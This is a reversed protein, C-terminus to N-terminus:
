NKFPSAWPVIDTQFGNNSLTKILLNSLVSSIQLHLCFEVFYHRTGATCSCTQIKPSFSCFRSSVKTIKNHRHHTVSESKPGPSLIKKSASMVDSPSLDTIMALLLWLRSLLESSQCKLLPNLCYSQQGEILNL